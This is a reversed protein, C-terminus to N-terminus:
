GTRALGHMRIRGMWEGGRREKIRLKNIRERESEKAVSFLYVIAM